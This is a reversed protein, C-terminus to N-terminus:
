ITDAASGLHISGGPHPNAQNLRDIGDQVAEEVADTLDRVAHRAKQKFSDLYTTLDIPDNFRVMAVRRGLPTPEQSYVDEAVKSVTEAFRDLTPNSATYNGTYSLVRYALMAEDAWVRAPAHDATREPDLRVQHIVRRARRVRDILSDRPRPAQGMKSELRTLVSEATANILETPDDHAPIDFGRQRLNRHLAATAVRRLRALPFSEVPAAPLDDKLDRELDALLALVRPQADALYTLKISVPVAWIRTGREALEKAARLGIMAAGEHLPTVADNQLYVNGEPFITLGRRGNMITDRAHAMGRPDSGERDVSFAGLYQMVWANFRSRLFVDYAAMIRTKLGAIRLAEIWIAPDSHSPHNPLFILRDGAAALPQIRDARTIQVSAIKHVRPLYYWRNGLTLVTAFLGLGRPPFYQYPKDSFDLM